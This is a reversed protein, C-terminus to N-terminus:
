VHPAPMLERTRTEECVGKRSVMASELRCWPDIVFLLPRDLASSDVKSRGRVLGKENTFEHQPGTTIRGFGAWTAPRLPECGSMQGSRSKQASVGRVPPRASLDVTVLSMVCM